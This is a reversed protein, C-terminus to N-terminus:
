KTNENYVLVISCLRGVSHSSMLWPCIARAHHAHHSNTLLHEGILYKFLCSLIIILLPLHLSSCWPLFFDGECLFRSSSSLLLM